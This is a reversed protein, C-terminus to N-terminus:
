LCFEAGCIYLCFVSVVNCKFKGCKQCLWNSSMLFNTQDVGTIKRIWRAFGKPVVKASCKCLPCPPHLSGTSNIMQDGCLRAPCLFIIVSGGYLFKDKISLKDWFSIDFTAKIDAKEDKTLIHGEPFDKHRKPFPDKNIVPSPTTQRNTLWIEPPARGHLKGNKVEM